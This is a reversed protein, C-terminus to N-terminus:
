PAKWAIQDDKDMLMLTPENMGRDNALVFVARLKGTADRLNIGHGLMNADVTVLETGNKDYLSLAPVDSTISLGVRIGGYRGSHEGYLGLTVRDQSATMHISKGGGTLDLSPADSGTLSVTPIPSGNPANLTLTAGFRGMALEGGIKGSADKLVFKQAEVTRDSKAQAMLFLSVAFLATLGGIQKLRRNERELTELRRRIDSLHSDSGDM